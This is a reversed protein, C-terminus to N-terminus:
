RRRRPDLADNVGDGLLNFGLVALALVVGPIAVLHPAYRWQDISTSIMQGWSAGPPQIGIGLYSLSAELLANPILHRRVIQWPSAGIARASLVFDMERLRLIEGRVLRAYGYWLTLSLAGLVVIYDAIVTDTLLALGTRAAVWALAAQFPPKATANVFSALLLKPFAMTADSLRSVLMDTLGGAYASVAGLVIGLLCAILTVTFGVLLATRAGAAVRSFYDRGLQDTGLWHEASPGEAVHDLDQRNPNYPSVSNGFLALLGILLSILLGLLAIRNRMLSRWADSWLGRPRAGPALRGDLNIKTIGPIDL